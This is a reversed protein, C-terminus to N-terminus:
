PPCYGEGDHAAGVAQAEGNGFVVAAPVACTEPRVGTSPEHSPEFGAAVSAAPILSGAPGCGCDGAGEPWTM